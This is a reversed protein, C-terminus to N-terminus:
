QNWKDATVKKHRTNKQRESNADQGRTKSLLEQSEPPQGEAATGKRPRGKKSM